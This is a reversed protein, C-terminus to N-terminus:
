SNKFYSKIIHFSHWCITFRHYKYNYTSTKLRIQERDEHDNSMSSAKLQIILELGRLEGNEAIGLQFDVGYDNQPRNVTWDQPINARLYTESKQELIHSM